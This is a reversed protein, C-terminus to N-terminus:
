FLGGRGEACIVSKWQETIGSADGSRKFYPRSRFVLLLSLDGYFSLNTDDEM